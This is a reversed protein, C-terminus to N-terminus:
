NLYIQELIGETFYMDPPPNMGPPGITWLDSNEKFEQNQLNAAM